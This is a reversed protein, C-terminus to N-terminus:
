QESLPLIILRGNEIKLDSIQNLMSRVEPEAQLQDLLNETRVEKMVREPLTVGNMEIAEMHLVPNRGVMNLSFSGEGNFYRGEVQDAIFKIPIDLADLDVSIISKLQDGEISVKTKGALGKLNPHHYILTNIDDGSLVLPPPIEGSSLAASFDDFRAVVRDAEAQSVLPASIAVPQESTYSSVLIEVKDSLMRFGFFGIAVILIVMVLCGSGCCAAFKGTGGSDPSRSYPDEDM